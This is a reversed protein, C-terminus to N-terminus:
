ADFLRQPIDFALRQTHWHIFQQAARYTVLQAHVGPDHGLAVCVVQGFSLLPDILAIVSDFHTDSVLHTPNVVDALNVRSGLLNRADAIAKTIVNVDGYVEMSADMHRHCAHQHLLKLGEAQEVDLLWQLRLLNLPEAFKAIMGGGGYSGTLAHVGTPAEFIQNSGTGDVDDLWIDAVRAANQFGAFNGSHGLTVVHSDRRM